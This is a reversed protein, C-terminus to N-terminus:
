WENHSMRFAVAARLGEPTFPFLEKALRHTNGYKGKKAMKVRHEVKIVREGSGDRRTYWEVGTGMFCGTKHRTDAHAEAFLGALDLHDASYHSKLTEIATMM